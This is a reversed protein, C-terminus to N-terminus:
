TYLAMGAGMAIPPCYRPLVPAIGGSMKEKVLWDNDLRCPTPQNVKPLLVV